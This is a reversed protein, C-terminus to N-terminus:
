AVIHWDAGPNGLVGESVINLGNMLWMAASGDTAQWLIDSHHDNNFDGTAVAHVAPGPNHGIVGGGIINMGNMLWMAAAGDTAQWLIDAHGDGNFDGTAIAHVNPGPNFGGIVGGGIINMGNMLWMAAAGDTAQWLIDAHGDGNFDGTAIAHVNPGPNFGGIVGGGIINMGNMLWMAAAGDTAQWLIDAHGDGNFDGTAIAHVNPGPNFGGIVGEGVINTGNMLWMAASGGTAQWLIDAHGDGNFDGTAIAHINAGPNVGILGGGTNALGNMQWEAAQGDARQWLIDSRADANFDRSHNGDDDFITGIGLNDSISVSNTAGSLTVSFTENSEIKTDGNITISITQTNVGTAFSLTGSSAVYDHDATTAGGNSTAFNVAFAAPAGSHTVTFTAVKNGDNGETVTVDNIAVSPAPVPDDNLITGIGLNGSITAGNTAGSLNVFFSEDSEYKTDGTITVSITQTNVGAAFNLTGANAVYDNDATTANSDSTAFNVAFAATGGTRTVTFTGVKTGANGEIIQMGGISISGPSPGQTGVRNWGIVDLAQIDRNTVVNAQGAPVSSPDMIGIGLNDKWHSAQNGDGQFDGTSFLALNTTGNNISFYTSGGYSLDSVGNGSFRFLDLTSFIAYPNLNVPAGPGRGSYYDVTDVGSVFGLAHGIEHFAVGVFDIAGTNIGDGPDFDWTFDSSFRISGDAAGTDVPQGNADTTIGLAKLDATTVSLYTNNASGDNDFVRTGASNNTFFALSSGASLSAVATVDDSSTRDATLAARVTSYSVVKSTSGTSGLIGPGLSSFGVDLRINVTDGLFSQWLATARLFGAEAQSGPTVGGVDHLTFTLAGANLPQLTIDAFASTSVAQIVVGPHPSGLVAGQLGALTPQHGDLASFDFAASQSVPFLWSEIADTFPDDNRELVGQGRPRFM